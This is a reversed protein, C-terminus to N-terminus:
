PTFFVKLAQREMHVGTHCILHLNTLISLPPWASVLLPTLIIISHCILCHKFAYAGWIM